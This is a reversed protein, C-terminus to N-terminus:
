WALDSGPGLLEKEETLVTAGLEIGSVPLHLRPLHEGHEPM